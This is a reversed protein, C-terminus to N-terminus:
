VTGLFIYESNLCAFTVGDRPLLTQVPVNGLELSLEGGFLCLEIPVGRALLLGDDVLDGFESVILTLDLHLGHLRPARHLLHVVLTTCEAVIKVVCFALDVISPLEDGIGLSANMGSLLRGLVLEVIVVVPHWIKNSGDFALRAVKLLSRDTRNSGVDFKAVHAVAFRELSHESM